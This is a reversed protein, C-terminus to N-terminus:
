VLRSFKEHRFFFDTYCATPNMGHDASRTPSAPAASRAVIASIVHCSFAVLLASVVGSHTGSRPAHLVV